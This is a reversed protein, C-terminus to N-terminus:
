FGTYAGPNSRSPRADSRRMATGLHLFFVAYAAHCLLTPLFSGTYLTVICGVVSISISGIALILGQGLTDTQLVQQVAFLVSCVLIPVYVGTEPFQQVLILFVAGRFFVEEVVAACLPSLVVVPAPMTLTYKIWPVSTIESSINMTPRAAMVLTMMLGTLSNQAIFALPVVGLYRRELALWHVLSVRYALLLAVAAIVGVLLYISWVLYARIMESNMRSYNMVSRVISTIPKSYGIRNIRGWFVSIATVIILFGVLNGASSM